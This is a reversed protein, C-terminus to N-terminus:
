IIKIKILIRNEPIAYICHCHIMRKYKLQHDYLKIIINGKVYKEVQKYVGEVRYTKHIPIIHSAIKLCRIYDVIMNGMTQNLYKTYMYYHIGCIDYIYQLSKYVNNSLTHENLTVRPHLRPIDVIFQKNVLVPGYAMIWLSDM